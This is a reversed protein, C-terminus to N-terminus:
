VNIKNENIGEGYVDYSYLRIFKKKNALKGFITASFKFRVIGSPYMVSPFPILNETSYLHNPNSYNGKLVPCKIEHDATEQAFEFIQRILWTTRVGQILRCLDFKTEIVKVEYKRGM